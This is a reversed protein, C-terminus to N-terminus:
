GQDCELTVVQKNVQRDGWQPQSGLSPPAETQSVQADGAGGTAAPM